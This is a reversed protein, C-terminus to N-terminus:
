RATPAGRSKARCHVAPTFPLPAREAEAPLRVASLASPYQSCQPRGGCNSRQEPYEYPTSQTSVRPVALVTPAWRLQVAARGAERVRRGTRPSPTHRGCCSMPPPEARSQPEQVCVDRVGRARPRRPTGYAAARYMAAIGDRMAMAAACPEAAVRLAAAACPACAQQATNHQTAAVTACTVEKVARGLMSSSLDFSASDLCSSELNHAEDFVVISRARGRARVNRCRGRCETLLRAKAVQRQPPEVGVRGSHAAREPRGRLQVQRCLLPLEARRRRARAYRRRSPWRYWGHPAM